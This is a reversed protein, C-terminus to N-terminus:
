PRDDIAERLRDFTTDIDGRIVDVRRTQPRCKILELFEDYMLEVPDDLPSDEVLQAADVHSQTTPAASREAFATVAEGRELCLAVEVFRSDAQAAVEGLQGIFDVRGLFQPVIVHRGGVLHDAAMSLAFSRATLGAAIPDDAWSGLLGRLVDLDLNLSLPHQDVYRQALTSKGSAPPGNLL